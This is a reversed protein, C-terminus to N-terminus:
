HFTLHCKPGWLTDDGPKKKKPNDIWIVRGDATVRRVIDSLDSEVVSDQNKLIQQLEVSPEVRERRLEKRRRALRRKRNEGARNHGM